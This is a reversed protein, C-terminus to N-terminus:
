AAPYGDVYGTDFFDQVEDFLLAGGTIPAPEQRVDHGVACQLVSDITDVAPAPLDL